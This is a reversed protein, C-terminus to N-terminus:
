QFFTTSPIPFSVFIFLSFHYIQPEEHTAIMSSIPLTKKISSRQRSESKNRVAAPRFPSLFIAPIFHLPAFLKRMSRSFLKNVKEERLKARRVVLKERRFRMQNAKADDFACFQILQLASVSSFCRPPHFLACYTPSDFLRPLMSSNQRISASM